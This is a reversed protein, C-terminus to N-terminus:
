LLRANAQQHMMCTQSVQCFAFSHHRWAAFACMPCTWCACCSVSVKPGAKWDGAYGSYSYYFFSGDLNACNHHAQFPCTRLARLVEPRPIEDVDGLIVLDGDMAQSSM